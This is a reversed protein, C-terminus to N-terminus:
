IIFYWGSPLSKKMVVRFLKFLPQFTPFQSSVKNLIPVGQKCSNHVWWFKPSLAYENCRKFIARCLIWNTEEGASWKGVDNVRCQGTCHCVRQHLVKLILRYEFTTCIIWVSNQNVNLMVYRRPDIVTIRPSEIDLFRQTFSANQWFWGPIKCFSSGDYIVTPRPWFWHSRHSGDNELINQFYNISRRQTMLVNAWHHFFNMLNKLRYM